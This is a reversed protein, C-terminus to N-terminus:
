HRETRIWPKDGLMRLASFEVPLRWLSYVPLFVFALVARLPKEQTALAMTTYVVIRLLGIILLAALATWAPPKAVLLVASLAVVLGLHVVPGPATLEAIVDLKQHAGINTSRLVAGAVRGLVTFKGAAWRQRQSASQRLSKAEQAYVRAGPASEIPVGAITLLAYLEWDEGISFANWGHKELVGTGICGGLRIPLNLGARAKLEYAYLCKADAFVAAMRTVNSDDPNSVGNYGQVAKDALPASRALESAFERDVVTDADVIVVADYDGLTLRSLAWAVAHPKGPQSPETRVLCQAGSALARQATDDTCNDAVVVVRYASEPYRIQRLSQVCTEILLAEDHAPVLFLLQPTDGAGVSPGRRARRLLAMASFADSLTPILLVVAVLAIFVSAVIIM